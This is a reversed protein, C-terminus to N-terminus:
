SSVRMKGNLLQWIGCHSLPMTLNQHDKFGKHPSNKLRVTIKQGFAGAPGVFVIMTSEFLYTAKKSLMTARHM